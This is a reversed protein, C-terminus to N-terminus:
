PVNDGEGRHARDEEKYLNRTAEETRADDRPAAKRNRLLAWLLVAGLLLPGAITIISWFAGSPSDM